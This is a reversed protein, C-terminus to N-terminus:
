YWWYQEEESVDVKNAALLARRSMWVATDNRVVHTYSGLSSSQALSILTSQYRLPVLYRFIIKLASAILKAVCQYM